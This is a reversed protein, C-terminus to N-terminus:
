TAAGSAAGAIESFARDKGPKPEAPLGLVREAIVNRLIEDTGGGLRVGPSWLFNKQFLGALGTSSEDAVLGEAGLLEIAERSLDQLMNAFVIKSFASEPGPSENRALATLMRYRLLRIGEMQVYWQALKARLYGDTLPDIGHSRLQRLLQLFEKWGIGPARGAAFRENLLATLAVNWGADVVGICQSAPVAVNELFVENFSTGGWMQRIPRVSIGPARMNVWFMTLGRHKPADPNTRALLTGFEAYHAGSTWVKQGSIRFVDGERVARTRVAALDSGASPESFLQCWIDEGSLARAVFRRKTAEDAWAILTPICMTLGIDVFGTPVDFASEEQDFIVQFIPSAGRGGLDRPWHICAFRSAAKCAQWQRAARLQLELTLSQFPPLRGQSKAPANAELWQRAEARFQAEEPSDDINM